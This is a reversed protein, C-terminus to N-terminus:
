MYPEMIDRLKDMARSIKTGVSGIAIGHATAIEKYSKEKLFFDDIIRRDTPRLHQGAKHILEALDKIELRGLPSDEIPPDYSGNDQDISTVMGGGRKKALLKRCHDIAKDHTIRGLLAKMDEVQIVVGKKVKQILIELSQSAVDEVDGGCCIRMGSYQAKAIASPWLWNFALGWHQEDGKLLMSLDFTM